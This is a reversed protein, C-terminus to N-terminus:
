KGTAMVPLKKARAQAMRELMRNDAFRPDKERYLVNYSCTPINTGDPSPVGVCCQKVRDVIFNEEDMHSHIYIAKVCRESIRRRAEIELPKGPPFMEDLLRRLTALVQASEPIRDPDAWLEDIVDRFFEDLRM